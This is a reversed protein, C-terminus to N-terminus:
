KLQNMLETVKEVDVPNSVVGDIKLSSGVIAGDAIGMQEKINATKVGSGVIVPVNVVNKVRKVADIPTEGGTHSGTVIVADAGSSVAVAASEEISISPILMHTYKVQIDAFIKVNEAGIQKRYYVADRACPEMIGAFCAVTDVFVALRVFDAGVAKACALATEYDCFAADIGVPLNTNQKVVAAVAALATSQALDLKKGYPTDGFNEVMLATVGGDELAKTDKLAQEYIKEMNGDFGPTGPLPLLHVMGIIAKKGDFLNTM